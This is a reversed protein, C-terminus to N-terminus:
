RHLLLPYGRQQMIYSNKIKSLKMTNQAKRIQPMTRYCRKVEFQSIRDGNELPPISLNSPPTLEM